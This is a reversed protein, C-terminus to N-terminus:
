PSWRASRVSIARILAGRCVRLLQNAGQAHGACRSSRGFNTSCGSWAIALTASQEQGYVPSMSIFPLLSLVPSVAKM